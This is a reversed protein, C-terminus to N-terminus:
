FLRTTITLILKSGRCKVELRPDIEMDNIALVEDNYSVRWPQHCQSIDPCTSDACNPNAM